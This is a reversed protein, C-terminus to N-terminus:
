SSKPTKNSLRVFLIWLPLCLAAMFMGKWWDTMVFDTWGFRVLFVLDFVISLIIWRYLWKEINRM